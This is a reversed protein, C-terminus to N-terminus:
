RGTKQYSVNTHADIAMECVKKLGEIENMCYALEAAIDIPNGSIVSGRGNKDSVIVFVTDQNGKESLERAYDILGKITKKRM